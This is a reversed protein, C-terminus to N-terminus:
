LGRSQDLTDMAETLAEVQGQYFWWRTSGEPMNERQVSRRDRLAALRTRYTATEATTM